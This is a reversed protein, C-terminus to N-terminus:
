YRGIYVRVGNGIHAFVVRLDSDLAAGSINFQRVNATGSDPSMEVGADSFWIAYAAIMEELGVGEHSASWGGSLDRADTLELPNGRAVALEGAHVAAAYPTRRLAVRQLRAGQQALAGIASGAGSGPDLVAVPSTGAALSLAASLLVAAVHARAKVLYRHSM